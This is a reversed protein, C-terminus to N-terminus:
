AHKGYLMRIIYKLTRCFLACDTIVIVYLITLTYRIDIVYRWKFDAQKKFFINALRVAHVPVIGAYWFPHICAGALIFFLTVAYTRFVSYHWDKARGACLDHYSYRYFRNFIGRISGPIDWYTVAKATYAIKAGSRGVKEMFIRDEAARFPPFGGASRFVTKKFLSSPVANTRIWTGNVKEQPPVFAILGCEKIFSDIVPCFAGYVVDVTRDNEMPRVLERLWGTDLRMGADAFAITDYRSAEVGINRGEGPYAKEAEILRMPVVSTGTMGRVLERTKDASGGDVFIVEDPRREQANISDVLTTITREEDRVPIVLSVKIDSM